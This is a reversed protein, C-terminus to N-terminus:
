RPNYPSFDVFEWQMEVPLPRLVWRKVRFTWSRGTAARERAGSARLWQIQAKGTMQLTRHNAFDVILVGAAPNIALNGLTNFMGNGPYDPVSLTHDDVLTVFGAPGGRHSVDGGGQPSSSAVFITDAGEVIQRGVATLSSGSEIPHLGRRLEPGQKLVRRQIYKPCNPYAEEVAITLLNAQDAILRGNIRLRRRTALDIALGGVTKGLALNEWLPDGDDRTNPGVRIRLTKRDQSEVFGPPGFLISAWVEGEPSSSGVLFMKQERLFPLAGTMITDAIMAGNREGVAAEGTLEQVLLEGPHFPNQNQM